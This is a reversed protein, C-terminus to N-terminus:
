CEEVPRIGALVAAVQASLWRQGRATARVASVLEDVEGRKLLYGSAGAEFAAVVREPEAYATFALVRAGCFADLIARTAEIGNMDPMSLDMLVVEPRVRSMLLLAEAGSGASGVVETEPVHQLLKEVAARVIGHDDVLLV